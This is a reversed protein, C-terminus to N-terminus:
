ERVTEGALRGEALLDTKMDQGRQGPTAPTRVMAWSSKNLGWLRQGCGQGATGRAGAVSAETRRAEQSPVAQSGRSWPNGPGTFDQLAQIYLRLGQSVHATRSHLSCVMCRVTKLVHRTNGAPCSCSASNGAEGTEEAADRGWGRAPRSPPSKNSNRFTTFTQKTHAM